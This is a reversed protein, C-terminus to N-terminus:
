RGLALRQASDLWDRQAKRYHAPAIRAQELLNTAVTRSEEVRGQAKLLQAYRVAAEAGPYSTSLTQYEELAKHANGEAELARAHLLHAQPSRFGPNLRLAEDLTARAGSADGGGFQARALGLMLDPDHEYLGTLIRRFIAAADEFRNHRLLEEALRQSSAVNQTVQAEDQLRRLQAGPDLAQKVGRRTAQLGRSRLIEPLLEVIFYAIVGVGPLFIILFIWVTNRGTKFVHIVLLVDLIIPLASYLWYAM